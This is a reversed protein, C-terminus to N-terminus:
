LEINFKVNDRKPLLISQQITGKELLHQRRLLGYLYCKNNNSKELILQSDIKAYIKSYKQTKSCLLKQTCDARQFRRIYLRGNELIGWM